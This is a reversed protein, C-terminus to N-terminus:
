ILVKSQGTRIRMQLLRLLYRVILETNSLSVSALVSRISRHSLALVMEQFALVAPFKEAISKTADIMLLHDRHMNNDHLRYKFLRQRTRTLQFHETIRLLLDWDEFKLAEDFAGVSIVANKRYLLGMAPLWNAVLLERHANRSFPVPYLDSFACVTKLDQDTAFGDCYAAAVNEPLARLLDLCVKTKQPLYADDSALFQVYDGSCLALGRNLTACVGANPQSRFVVPLKRRLTALTAEIVERTRDTSGDDIIVLEIKPYTQAVVSRIAQEVYREHNYAPMITSVLPQDTSPTVM